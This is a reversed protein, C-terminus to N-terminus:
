VYPVMAAATRPPPSSCVISALVEFPYLPITFFHTSDGRETGLRELLLGYEHDLMAKVREKSVYRSTKGYIRDSFTMDYASMTKAISGSASGARFFHTAVEQGAGIEAITGFIEPRRNLELVKQHTDSGIESMIATGTERLRAVRTSDL